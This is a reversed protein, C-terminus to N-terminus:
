VESDLNEIKKKKKKTRSLLPADAGCKRCVLSVPIGNKTRTNFTNNSCEKCILADANNKLMDLVEQPHSDTCDKCAM